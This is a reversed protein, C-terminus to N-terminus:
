GNFIESPTSACDGCSWLGVSLPMTDKVCGCNSCTKSSPFFGDAIAIRGGRMAAEYKSNVASKMGVMM